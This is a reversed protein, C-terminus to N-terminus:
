TDPNDRKIGVNFALSIRARGSNNREVEHPLDPPFLFLDGAKPTFSTRENGSHFVIDGSDPPVDLYYVGSVLEDDDNHTHLTTIDGPRMENVWFAIGLQEEELALRDRCQRDIWTLLPEIEPFRDRPPYINEYRGNFLHSKETAPDSKLITYASFILRNDIVDLDARHHEVDLKDSLYAGGM